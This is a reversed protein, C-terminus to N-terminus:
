LVSIWTEDTEGFTRILFIAVMTKMFGLGTLTILDEEKLDSSEFLARYIEKGRTSSVNEGVWYSILMPDNYKMLPPAQSMPDPLSISSVGVKWGSGELRIAHPLRIKFHNSTDNPFQDKSSHSPLAM